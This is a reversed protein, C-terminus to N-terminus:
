RGSLHLRSYPCAGSTGTGSFGGLHQGLASVLPPQLSLCRLAQGQFPESTGGWQASWRRSYPSAGSTGTGSVAGVQNVGDSLLAVRTSSCVNTIWWPPATSVPRPRRTSGFSSGPRPNGSTPSIAAPPGSSASSLM